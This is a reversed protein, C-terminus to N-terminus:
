KKTKTETDARIVTCNQSWQTQFTKPTAPIKTKPKALTATETRRQAEFIPGLPSHANRAAGLPTETLQTLPDHFRVPDSTIPIRSHRSAETSIAGLNM